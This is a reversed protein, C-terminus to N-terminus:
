RGTLIRSVVVFKVLHHSRSGAAILMNLQIAILVRKFYIRVFKYNISRIVCLDTVIISFLFAALSGPNCPLMRIINLLGELEILFLRQCLLQVICNYLNQDIWFSQHPSTLSYRYTM